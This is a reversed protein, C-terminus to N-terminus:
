FDLAASAEPGTKGALFGIAGTTNTEAMSQAATLWQAEERNVTPEFRNEQNGNAAGWCANSVFWFALIVPLLGCGNKTRSDNVNVGKRLGYCINDSLLRCILMVELTWVKAPTSSVYKCM